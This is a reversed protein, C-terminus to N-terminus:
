MKIHFSEDHPQISIESDSKLIQTRISTKTPCLYAILVLTFLVLPLLLENLKFENTCNSKSIRKKNRCPSHTSKIQSNRNLFEYNFLDEKVLLSDMCNLKAEFDCKALDTEFQVFYFTRRKHISKFSNTSWVLSDIESLPQKHLLLTNTQEPLILEIQQNRLMPRRRMRQKVLDLNLDDDFKLVYTYAFIKSSYICKVKTSAINEGYMKIMNLDVENPVNCLILTRKLDSNTEYQQFPPQFKKAIQFHYDKFKIMKKNLLYETSQKNEFKINLQFGDDDLQYDVIDSSETNFLNNGAENELYIIVTDLDDM